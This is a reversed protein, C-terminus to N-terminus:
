KGLSGPTFMVFLNDQFNAVLLPVVVLTRHNSRLVFRSLADDLICLVGSFENMARWKTM